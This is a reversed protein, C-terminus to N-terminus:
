RSNTQGLVEHITQAIEKIVIPKMVFANIGFKQSKEEDILSSYGTSIIIPIDPRVARLEESLKIGSMQPMTMDTIVLDFADPKSQFLELAEIPSMRSEVQYGLRGLMQGTIDVIANEDDVFLIRESGVPIEDVTEIEAVADKKVVPFFITFKTGEGIESEVFIKGNHGNVIGHVVSLGMGTGKGIEKTTFYPDFIRDMEKKLIGHGTDNITLKVYRGASLEYSQATSESLAVRDLNIELVGGEEEMAHVANTCLNIMIQNIQTPDALITVSDRPINSRIEVSSPISSRLLKLAGTVIPTIKVPKRAHDAKRAFSLLQQIVDKARLSATKVKELNLHAPNWEPVDYMALETNGLIIGLINNFDHAIGGALTGIAEMKQSQQLQAELEKKEKEAQKRQTIDESIGLLYQPKGEENIIPIKKTHLIKEGSNKTQIPEEPIDLLEGSSLVANDKKTFFDAEEKPFIDYDNKGILEKRSFGLLDEGARNFRLFRLEKADKVFIMDPINEIVTRLFKENERLAEEAQKRTTIDLATFTVGASLDDLDLPTSSMLVDIIKGDKRKFHTEVTGTGQMRIQRYKESGVYEYDEDSPYVIRANKGILEDSTFQTMECLRENVELLMRDAVLGIGIPAARFISRMKAESKRLAKEAQKQKSIDRAIGHFGIPQGKSNTLLAVSTDIYCKSGDKRKLEWDFAKYPEGTKYVQNFANYVKKANEENMFRRNNMGTLEKKSYGLIKCMADNFFAFNGAIDVEYYGDQVSKIITKYKEEIRHSAMENIEHEPVAQELAQIRQELEKYTPKEHM